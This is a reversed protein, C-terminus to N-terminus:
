EETEDLCRLGYGFPFLPDAEPDDQNVPNGEATRPWSYALKGTFDHGVSGDAARFIVEAVGGGETGPLWAAVFADSAALEPEVWMPRGSLFISVVPIGEAKLRQLLKLENPYDDRYELNKRDGDGEAYPDEGFVVVAVDPRTVFSGDVSLTATGGAQEVRQRIGEGISTAGPFDSNSTKTGQWSISWGGCQRGISDAGNGAVMVTLKRDLPLLSDQNKLLVLSERVAQRAVARHAPAGLLEFRGALPRESPRGRTFLGARWKVRLIRRVADDLRESAIKGSQVQKVTNHYLAKWHKPVMFMDVGANFADPCSKESCGPLQAHGNWDGVVFGDFGMREKKLVGTLLEHNGHMKRGHWSSFSAMVTQVGADLAAFYGAGHIDRLQEESCRVDGENGGRYTGGDGLFHKATAVVQATDLFTDTGATGQLGSVIEGAMMRVLEPDESFGEYTRGWRDDRVVALTPAFTWDLGTVAVETATIEGIRHVLDPNRTAGLGINHPFITAGIINNHGHVADTGWIAPIAQGGDSTDMSADYFADALALWEEPPAPELGGPNSGGGNLVSGLRFRRVDDPTVWRLEAQIVQGVKEELSLSGLMEEIAADAEPDPALPSTLEPWVEPHAGPYNADDGRQSCGNVLFLGAMIVVMSLMRM